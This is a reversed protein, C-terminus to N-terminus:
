GASALLTAATAPGVGLRIARALADPTDVDHRLTSTAALEIAVAGAARHAAASDAGFAPTLDVGPRATLMTTGTGDADPVVASPHGAAVTLASSLEASLLAPLDGLLVAVGHSGPLSAAFAAGVGIAANLGLADGEPLITLRPDDSEVFGSSATVVVVREVVESALAAAVTDRAFALALEGRRGADFDAGLRTKAGLAGKVPVVVVWRLPLAASKAPSSV